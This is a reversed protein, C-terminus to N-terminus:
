IRREGIDVARMRTGCNPCSITNCKVNEEVEVRYNCTPCFCEHPGHLHTYAVSLPQGPGPREARRMQGGCRPCVISNCHEASEVVYGCVICECCYTTAQTYAVGEERDEPNQM